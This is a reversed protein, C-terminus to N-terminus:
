PAKTLSLDATTTWTAGGDTSTENLERVQGNPMLEFGFRSLREVGDRVAARQYRVHGPKEAAGKFHLTSGTNGAWYYQWNNEAKSYSLVAVGTNGGPKVPMWTHLIACGNAAREFRATAVKDEGRRVDWTGLIYDHQRFEPTQCAPDTGSQAHASWAVFLSAMPALLSVM